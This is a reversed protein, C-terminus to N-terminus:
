FHTGFPGNSKVEGFTKMHFRQFFINYFERVKAGSYEDAKDAVSHMVSTAFPRNATGCFSKHGAHDLDVRWEKVQWSFQQKQRRGSMLTKAGPKLDIM